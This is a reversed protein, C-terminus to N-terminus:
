PYALSTRALCADTSLYAAPYPKLQRRYISTTLGVMTLHMQRYFAYEGVDGSNLLVQFLTGRRCCANLCITLNKPCTYYTLVPAVQLRSCTSLRPFMASASGGAPQQQASNSPIGLGEMSYLVRQVVEMGTRHSNSQRCSCSVKASQHTSSRPCTSRLM